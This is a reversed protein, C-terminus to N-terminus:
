LLSLWLLFEHIKFQILYELSGYRISNKKRQIFCPKILSIPFLHLKLIIIYHTKKYSFLLNKVLRYWNVYATLLLTWYLLHRQWISHKHIDNKTGSSFVNTLQWSYILTPLLNMILLINIYNLLKMLLLIHHYHIQQWVLIWSQFM